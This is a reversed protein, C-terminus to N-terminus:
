SAFIPKLTQEIEEDTSGLAIDRHLSWQEEHTVSDGPNLSVLPSLSELELMRKNTFLECNCGFDPYEARARHSFQKLFMQKNNEYACWGASVLAGIKQPTTANPDQRLRVYKRGWTWRPDTMDTYAWFVFPRVPLLQEPHPRYPEQPLIAVGGPAMVSLAWAALKQPEQAHNAIRHLLRIKPADPDMWLHIEKQLNTAPEKPPVFHFWEGSQKWAVPRNDPFYTRPKEEPAVWLRHGGYSHYIDEDKKGMQDPYEVFLNAENVFGCRIIRPGVELTVVVEIIGNTIHLCKQWGGYPILQHQIM